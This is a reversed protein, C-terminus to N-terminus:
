LRDELRNMQQMGELMVRSSYLERVHMGIFVWGYYIENGDYDLIGAVMRM